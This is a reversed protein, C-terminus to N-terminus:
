STPMLWRPSFIRYPSILRSLQLRHSRNKMGQVSMIASISSSCSGSSDMSLRCGSFAKSTTPNVSCYSILKLLMRAM